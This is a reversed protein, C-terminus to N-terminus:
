DRRFVAAINNATFRYFAVLSRWGESPQRFAQWLKSRVYSPGFHFRMYAGECFKEIERAPLGPLSIVTRHGGHADLWRSYDLTDLVGSLRAWKYYETGPFPMVPYFQASDPALEVALNFTAEMTERTEGPFGVMFCGHVMIGLERCDKMFRRHVEVTEGKHMASLMADDGSEFGVACCRLGASKLLALTERDTNTRINAFWPLGVGRLKVLEAVRRAFRKDATFTDDEFVIERVEPMNKQIWLMEGVISDASRTRYRHGHMVQPYVCYTCRAPCGRGGILMAMPHHAIAFYYNAPNLFKKYIPAIWPLVDVDDIFERAPGSVSAGDASRCALGEIGTFDHARANIARALDRLTFDYEGIAVFDVGKHVDLTDKWLASVHTGGMCIRVGPIRSKIEEAVACDNAASATSTELFCLGPKLAGLADLLAARDMGAAPCDYLMIDFGDAELVAAAHALWYPYYMTGSKIVGPSRQTRSFGKFYPPNILAVVPPRPTKNEQM